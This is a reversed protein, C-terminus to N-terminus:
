YEKTIHIWFGKDGKYIEYDQIDSQDIANKIREMNEPSFRAKSKKAFGDDKKAMEEFINKKLETSGFGGGIYTQGGPKLVRFIENFAMKLDDWFFISGRSIILDTTNDEFPINEARGTIPTIQDEFGQEKINKEAFKFSHKSADLAHIKLDTIRALAISLAASGSGLDICQGTTINFKEKIHDAILPYIPAFLTKAIKDMETAAKADEDENKYPNDTM